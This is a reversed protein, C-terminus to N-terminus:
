QEIKEDEKTIEVIKTIDEIVSVFLTISIKSNYNQETLVNIEKIEIIQDNSEKLREKVLDIAKDIAKEKTYIEEKTIVEYHKEKTIKAPLINNEIITKSDYKFQKYKKYPFIPIKNNGLVLVLIKKNKGTVKEEQYFLPYDVNIKYWVEGYVKGVAKTYINSGDPKTLIGSIITEGSKVYENQQKIKEGSYAKIESIIANKSAIISQYENDKEIVEKKREVVKIIYKTGKEEFEIWELTDKNNNLIEKRIKNLYKRKKKINYKKIDYEKLEKTLQKVIEPNNSSIEISFIVNSLFYLFFISLVICILIIDNKRIVDLIKLKGYKKIITIKYTKSYKKLESFDHYDIIIIVENHKIINLHKINLKKKILWKIYNNVNKGEVKVKIYNNNM